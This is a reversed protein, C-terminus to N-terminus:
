YPSNVTIVIQKFLRLFESSSSNAIQEITYYVFYDAFAM